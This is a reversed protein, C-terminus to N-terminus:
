SHVQVAERKRESFDGKIGIFRIRTTDAGLNTPFHLDLSHVGNFKPVQAALRLVGWLSIM